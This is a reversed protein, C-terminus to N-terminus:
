AESPRFTQVAPPREYGIRRERRHIERRNFSAGAIGGVVGSAASLLLTGFAIWAAWASTENITRAAGQPLQMAPMQQMQLQTPDITVFGSAQALLAQVGSTLLFLTLVLSFAWVVLGEISGLTKTTERAGIGAVLGGCFVAIFTSILYWIGVGVSADRLEEMGPRVDLVTIGIALGFTTLLIMVALTVFVGAFIARWSITSFPAGGYGYSGYPSGTPREIVNEM